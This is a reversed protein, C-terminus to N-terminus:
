PQASSVIMQVYVADGFPQDDPGYARWASHITGSEAPSTFRITILARTGARAPYLPLTTEAGLNSGGVHRLSYEATWGCTGINEVEWTKDIEAGPTVLTGDPITIDTIFALGNHCPPTPQPTSAAESDIVATKLPAPMTPPKFFVDSTPVNASGAGGSICGTLAM